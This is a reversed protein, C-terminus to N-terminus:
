PRVYPLYLSAGCSFKKISICEKTILAVMITEKVMEMIELIMTTTLM